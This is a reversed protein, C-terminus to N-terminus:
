GPPEPLKFRWIPQNPPEGVLKQFRELIKTGPAETLLVAPAFPNAAFYVAKGKGLNRVVLAPEGTPYSGLQEVDPSVKIRHATFCPNTATRRPYIPLRLDAGEHIIIAHQDVPEGVKVGFLSERVRSLNEGDPAWSFATPDGCVLIGGAEVWARLNEALWTEAYTALPLYLIAYDDLHRLGRQLQRDSIIDFWCGLKEGLLAYATYVEDASASAGEAAHAVSCYLIATHTEQPRDLARMESVTKAIHLMMRWRPEDTFRPNDSAYFNLSTAGCRLAQSSWELLDEPTVEYGAYDFAQVVIEVPKLNSRDRGRSLDALFKAGFGHNYMGRGPTREASSAYPDGQVIDSYKAMRSFDFPVHGSMLWFDCPIYQWASNVRKVQEYKKRAADAYRDGMWRNFAIWCFPQNDPQAWWTPDAPAPMGYRGFGYDRRVEEDAARMLSGAEARLSPYVPILPEDHGVIARVYPRDALIQALSHIEDLCAQVYAPDLLSIRPRANHEAVERPNLVEAGQKVAQILVPTTEAATDFTLGYHHHLETIFADTRWFYEPQAGDMIGWPLLLAGLHHEGMQIFTLRTEREWEADSMESCRPEPIYSRQLAHAWMTVYYGGPRNSLVEEFLPRETRAKVLGDWASASPDAWEPMATETISLDDFWVPGGEASLVVQSQVTERTPVITQEFPLWDDFRFPVVVIQRMGASGNSGEASCLAFRVTAQQAGPAFRVYGSVRYAHGGQLPIYVYLAAQGDPLRVSAMGSHYIAEDCTIAKADRGWPKWITFTQEFGPDALLEAAQNSKALLLVALLLHPLRCVM